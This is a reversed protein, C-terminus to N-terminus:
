KQKIPKVFEFDLFLEDEYQYLPQKQKLEVIFCDSHKEHYQDVYDITMKLRPKNPIMKLIYFNTLTVFYEPLYIRISENSMVLPFRLKFSDIIYQSVSVPRDLNLAYSVTITFTEPNLLKLDPDDIEVSYSRKKVEDIAEIGGILQFTVEIKLAYSKGTNILNFYFSDLEGQRYSMDEYKEDYANWTPTPKFDDLYVDKNLPTLRPREIRHREENQEKSQQKNSVTTRWAFFTAGTTAFATIVEISTKSVLKKALELFM